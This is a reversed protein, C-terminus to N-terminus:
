IVGERKHEADDSVAIILEKVFNNHKQIRNEFHLTIFIDKADVPYRIAFQLKRIRQYATPICPM